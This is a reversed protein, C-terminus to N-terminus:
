ALQNKKKEIIGVIQFITTASAIEQQTEDFVKIILDHIRRKIRQLTDQYVPMNTYEDIQRQQAFDSILDECQDLIQVMETVHTASAIAEQAKRFEESSQQLEFNSRAFHLKKRALHGTM